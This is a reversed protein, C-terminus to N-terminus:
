PKILRIGAGADVGSAIREIKDDECFVSNTNTEEIFIEAFDGGNKLAALLIEELNEKSLM